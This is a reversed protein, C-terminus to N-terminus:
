KKVDLDISNIFVNAHKSKDSRRTKVLACQM